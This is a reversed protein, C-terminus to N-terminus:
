SPNLSKGISPLYTLFMPFRIVNKITKKRKKHARPGKPTGVYQPARGEKM